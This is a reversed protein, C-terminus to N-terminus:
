KFLKIITNIGRQTHKHVRTMACVHPDFFWKYSGIRETREERWTPELSQVCTVPSPPLHYSRRGNGPGLLAKWSARSLSAPLRKWSLETSLNLNINVSEDPCKPQFAGDRLFAQFELYLGALHSVKSPLCKDTHKAPTNYPLHGSTETKRMRQVWVVSQLPPSTWKWQQSSHNQLVAKKMEMQPKFLALLSGLQPLRCRGQAGLDKVERRQKLKWLKRETEFICDWLTKATNLSLSLFLIDICKPLSSGHTLKSIHKWLHLANELNCWLRQNRLLLKLCLKLLKLLPLM